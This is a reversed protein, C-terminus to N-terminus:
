EKPADGFNGRVVLGFRDIAGEYTGNMQPYNWRDDPNPSDVSVYYGSSTVERVEVFHHTYSLGVDMWKLPRYAVLTSINHEDGDWNNTSLAKDPVASRDFWYRGGFTWKEAVTAKADLGVWFSDENARAWKRSQEVLEKAREDELDTESVTITFDDYASWMVYAGMVETRLWDVPKVMVGGQVRGPLTYAVNGTGSVIVPEGSPDCLGTDEAAFRGLTDEEPPCVFSASFSGENDVSAEHIYTVGVSFSDVPHILVGASFSYTTDSLDSFDLAATYEPNELDEDTYTLFDEAGNEILANRLDPLTDQDVEARWQTHVVAFTGGVSLMDKIDYALGAGAWIGRSDGDIMHFHGGGPPNTEAGGRAYPVALILGVGLRGPGVHDIGLDSAVGITPAIGSLEYTDIGKDDGARDFEFDATIYGGELFVRTGKAAAFGAPNWWGASGDTTTPTGWPGGIEINDLSAAYSLTALLLM